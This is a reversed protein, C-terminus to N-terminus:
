EGKKNLAKHKVLVMVAFAIAIVAIVVSTYVIANNYTNSINIAQKPPVPTTPAPTEETTESEEPEEVRIPDAIMPHEPIEPPVVAAPNGHEDLLDSMLVWGDFSRPEGSEGDDLELSIHGWPIDEMYSIRYEVKLKTNNELLMYEGNTDCEPTEWAVIYGAENYAYYTGGDSTLNNPDDWPDAVPKIGLEAYASIGSFLAMSFCASVLLIFLLKKKM